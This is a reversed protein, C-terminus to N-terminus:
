AYRKLGVLKTHTKRADARIRAQYQNARRCLNQVEIRMEYISPHTNIKRLDNVRQRATSISQLIKDLSSRNAAFVPGTKELDDLAQHMRTIAHRFELLRRQTALSRNRNRVAELAAQVHSLNLPIINNIHDILELIDSSSTDIKNQIPKVDVTLDPITKELVILGQRIHTLDRFVSELISGSKLHPITARFARTELNEIQLWVKDLLFNTRTKSIDHVIKKITSIFTRINCLSRIGITDFKVAKGLRTLEQEIFAIKPYVSELLIKRTHFHHIQM